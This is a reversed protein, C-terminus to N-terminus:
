AKPCFLTSPTQEVIVEKDDALNRFRTWITGEADAIELMEEAEVMQYYAPYIVASDARFSMLVVILFVDSKMTHKYVDFEDFGADEAIREIEVLEDDPVLIDLIASQDSDEALPTVDGTSVQVTTWGESEYDGAISEINRQIESWNQRVTESQSFSSDGMM